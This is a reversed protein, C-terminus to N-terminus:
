RVSRTVRNRSIRRRSVLPYREPHDLSDVALDIDLEPWYLHRPSPLEVTTLERISADEFWPFDKFSAFVERDGLFIWFGHRSVNSIEVDSTSTGRQVSRM